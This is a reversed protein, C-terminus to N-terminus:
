IDGGSEVSKLDLKLTHNIISGYLIFKIVERAPNWEIWWIFVKRVLLAIWWLPKM